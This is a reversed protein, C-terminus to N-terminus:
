SDADEDEEYTAEVTVPASVGLKSKLDDVRSPAERSDARAQKYDDLDAELAARAGDDLPCTKLGRTLMTKRMMEGEHEEWPNTKTRGAKFARWGDSRDRIALIEAAPMSDVKWVNGEHPALRAAFYAGVVPGRDGFGHEHLVDPHTGLHLEFRDREHVVHVSIALIRPSEYAKRLWGAYMIQLECSKTWEGKVKKGRPVLAAQRLAPSPDLGLEACKVAARVISDPTCERLSPNRGFENLVVAVARDAVAAPVLQLLRPKAQELGRALAAAAERPAILASSM